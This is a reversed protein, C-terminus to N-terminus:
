FRNGAELIQISLSVKQDAEAESFAAVVENPTASSDSCYLEVRGSDENGSGILKVERGPIRKIFSFSLAPGSVSLTCLFASGSATKGNQTSFFGKGAPRDNFKLISVQSNRSAEKSPLPLNELTYDLAHASSIGILSILAFLPLAKM